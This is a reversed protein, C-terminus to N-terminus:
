VFRGRLRNLKRPRQLFFNVTLEGFIIETYAVFRKLPAPKPEARRFVLLGVVVFKFLLSVLALRRTPTKKPSGRRVANPAVSRLLLKSKCRFYTPVPPCRWMQFQPLRLLSMPKHRLLINCQRIPLKRQKRNPPWHTLKSTINNITVVSRRGGPTRKFNLRRLKISVPRLRKWLAM